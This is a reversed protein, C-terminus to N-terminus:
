GGSDPLPRHALCLVGILRRGQPLLWMTRNKWGSDWNKPIRDKGEYLAVGGVVATGAILGRAELKALSAVFFGFQEATAGQFGLTSWPIDSIRTGTGSAFSGLVRIDEVTLTDLEHILSIKEEAGLDQGLALSSALLRAFLRRKEQSLARRLKEMTIWLLAYFEGSSQELRDELHAIREDLARLEAELNTFLEHVQKEFILSETEAYGQALSAAGPFSAALSRVGRKVIEWILPEQQDM